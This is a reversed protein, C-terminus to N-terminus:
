VNVIGILLGFCCVSCFVLMCVGSTKKLYKDFHQRGIEPIYPSPLIDTKEFSNGWTKTFFDTERKVLRPTYGFQNSHLCTELFIQIKCRDPPQLMSVYKLISLLSCVDSSTPNLKLNGICLSFFSHTNFRHKQLCLKSM